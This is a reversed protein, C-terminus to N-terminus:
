GGFKIKSFSNAAACFRITYDAGSCLFTTTQLDYTTSYSRPCASRFLQAYATPKCSSPSSFSDSCCYEPSGSATCASKCVQGGAFTLERPCRQNLDEVCGTKACSRLSSGSGATPEVLMRLNYGQDISVDYIDQSNIEIQNIFFDAITAPTTRGYPNCEMENTVNTGCNGTTCSWKGSSNFNCGTRGWISGIWDGPAQFSRSNGKTLAFGTENLSPISFIAPWITFGCDNVITFTVGLAGNSFFLFFLFSLTQSVVAVHVQSSASLSWSGM